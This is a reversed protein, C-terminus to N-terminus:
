PELEIIRIEDRGKGESPHGASTDRRPDPAELAHCSTERSLTLKRAQRSLKQFEGRMRELFRIRDAIEGVHRDLLTKSHECPPQGHDRFALIERIEGLSLGLTMAERLYCVRELEAEGYAPDKGSGVPSLLGAKEFLHITDASVGSRVSM